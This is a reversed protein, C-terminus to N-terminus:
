GPGPAGAVTRHEDPRHEYAFTGAPADREDDDVEGEHRDGGAHPHGEEQHRAGFVQPHPLQADTAEREDQAPRHHPQDLRHRAPPPAARRIVAHHTKTATSVAPAGHTAASM